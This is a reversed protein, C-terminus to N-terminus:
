PSWTSSRSPRGRSATRWPTSSMRARLIGETHCFGVALEFDHGPTRMTVALPQPEQNPGHVRIEMPEESVVKDPRDLVRDGDLARM